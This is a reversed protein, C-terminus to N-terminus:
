GWHGAIKKFIEFDPMASGAPEAIKQIVSIRHVLSCAAGAQFANVENL